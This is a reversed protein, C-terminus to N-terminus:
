DFPVERFGGQNPDPIVQSDFGCEKALIVAEERGFGITDASHTDSNIIICGGHARIFRLIEPSPYPTLRWGRSMAGTNIEFPKGYSILESVAEQWCVRYRDDDTDFYPAKDQFKTILDIHGIIDANVREFLRCELEYYAKVLRYPDNSFHESVAKKVIDPTNDVAIYEGGIDLYHVSGIVYEYPVIDINSYYDQEIGLLIDMKGAYATKLTLVESIYKQTKMSDMCCSDFAVYSHGSFGLVTYGDAYASDAMESPTNAGDCFVTHTHFNCKIM